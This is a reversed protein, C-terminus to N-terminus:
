VGSYLRFAFFKPLGAKLIKSAALDVDYSVRVITAELKKIDIKM